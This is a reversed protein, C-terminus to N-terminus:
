QQTAKVIAKIAAEYAPREKCATSPVVNAELLGKLAELLDPAAAILRATAANNSETFKGFSDLKFRCVFTGDAADIQGDYCLRWPAPAFNSM